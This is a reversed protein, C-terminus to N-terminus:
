KQDTHVTAYCSPSPSLFPCSQYLNSFEANLYYHLLKYYTLSFYHFTILDVNIVTISQNRCQTLHLSMWTITFYLSLVVNNNSFHNWSWNRAAHLGCSCPEFYATECLSTEKPTTFNQILIQGKFYGWLLFKLLFWVWFMKWRFDGRTFKSTEDIFLSYDDAYGWFLNCLSCIFWLINEIHTTTEPKCTPWRFHLMYLSSKPRWCPSFM